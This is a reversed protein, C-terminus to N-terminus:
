EQGTLELLRGRHLSITDRLLKVQEPRPSPTTLYRDLKQRYRGIQMEAFAIDMRREWMEKDALPAFQFASRMLKYRATLEGIAKNKAPVSTRVRMHGPRPAPKRVDVRVLQGDDGRRTKPVDADVGQYGDIMATTRNGDRDKEVEANWWELVPPAEPDRQKAM